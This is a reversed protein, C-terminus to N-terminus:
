IQCMDAVVYLVFSDNEESWDEPNPVVDVQIYGRKETRSCHAYQPCRYYAIYFCDFFKRPIQRWFFIM